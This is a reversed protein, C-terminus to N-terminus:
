SSVFPAIGYIIGVLIGLLTIIAIAIKEPTRLKFKKMKFKYLILLLIGVSYLILSPIGFTVFLIGEGLGDCGNICSFFFMAGITLMIITSILKLIIASKVLKNPENEANGFRYYFLGPFFGLIFVILSFGFGKLALDYFYDFSGYGRTLPKIAIIQFFLALIIIIFTLSLLFIGFYKYFKSTM